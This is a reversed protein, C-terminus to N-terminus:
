QPDTRDTKPAPADAKTRRRSTTKSAAKAATKAARKAPAKKAVKRAPPSKEPAAPAAPGTLHDRAKASAREIAALGSATASSLSAQAKDLKAKAADARALRMALVGTAIGLAFPMLPIM